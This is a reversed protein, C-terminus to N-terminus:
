IQVGVIHSLICHACLCHEAGEMWEGGYCFGIGLLYHLGQGQVWFGQGLEVV